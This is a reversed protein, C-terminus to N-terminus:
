RGGRDGPGASLPLGKWGAVSGLGEHLLVIPAGPLKWAPEIQEVHIECGGIDITM